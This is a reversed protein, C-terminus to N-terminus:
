PETNIKHFPIGLAIALQQAHYRANREPDHSDKPIIHICVGNLLVAYGGHDITQRIIIKNM